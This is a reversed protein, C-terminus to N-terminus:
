ALHCVYDHRTWLFLRFVVGGPREGLYTPSFYSGVIVAARPRIM